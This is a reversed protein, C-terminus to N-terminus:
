YTAEDRVKHGLRSNEMARATSQELFDDTWEVVEGREIQELSEAVAEAVTMTPLSRHDAMRKLAEVIVQQEDDFRGSAVEGEVFTKIERPLVIQM